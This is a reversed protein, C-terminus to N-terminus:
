RVEAELAEIREKLSQNEQRLEKVAEILVGTMRGYDVGLYNQDGWTTVLEPFQAEVEQAIVGIERHGTSRGMAQYTSNWDFAVGRIKDLKDLVNTLQTVNTKLRADSSTPFSSAHCSGAVDLMYGPTTTNIGVYGNNTIRMREQDYTGFKLYGDERNWMSANVSNTTIFGVVLGHYGVGTGPNFIRIQGTSGYISLESSPSNTGIGIYDGSQYINSNGITTSATFKPIRGSTGSVTGSAASTQTTGDPFKFGSSTSHIRGAVELKSNPNLTGIGVRAGQGASQLVMITSDGRDSFGFNDDHGFLTDNGVGFVWERNAPGENHAVRILGDSPTDESGVHLLCEPSHNGIGVPGEVILSNDPGTYNGAFTLGVAMRGAVDLNCVPDIVGIGVNDGNRGLVIKGAADADADITLRPYGDGAILPGISGHYVMHTWRSPDGTASARIGENTGMVDLRAGPTQTGIGVWGSTDVTLLYTGSPYEINFADGDRATLVSPSNNDPNDITIFPSTLGPEGELSIGDGNAGSVVLIDGPTTTGIGVNGTTRYIDNGSITWDADPPAATAYDATDAHEAHTASDAQFSTESQLAYDATDVRTIEEFGLAWDSTDSYSAHSAANAWNASDAWFAFDATDAHTIAGTSLALSATDAYIAHTASDAEFAFDAIKSKFGYPVSVMIERPALTQSEVTTELWLARGDFLTDPFSTVNGLLVRFLGHNVEVSTHTESWLSSGGTSDAFLAFQMDYIATIPNGTSDTLTGQFNITGPVAAWAGVAILCSGLLLLVLYRPTM